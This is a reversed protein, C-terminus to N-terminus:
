SNQGDDLEAKLKTYARYVNNIAAGVGWLVGLWLLWNWGILMKLAFGVGVGLLIAVAVSIGLSLQEIGEFTKKYKPEQENM